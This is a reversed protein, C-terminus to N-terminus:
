AGSSALLRLADLGEAALFSATGTSQRVRTSTGSIPSAGTLPQWGGGPARAISVSDFRYLFGNCVGTGGDWSEATAIPAWRGHSSPLYIAPSAPAGNLWVRWWGPRSRIELVAFSAARGVPLGSAIQHYAPAANPLALEYYVDVGGASPFGSLGVQLWEDAGKPGEGPGGVGVWAAVHGAVVRFPGVPTVTAGIGSAPASSALGAYSYGDRTGCALAHSAGILAAAVVLLYTLLAKRM